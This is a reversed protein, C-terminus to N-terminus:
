VRWRYARLGKSHACTVLCVRHSGRQQPYEKGSFEPFLNVHGHGVVCQKVEQQVARGVAPRGRTLFGAEDLAQDVRQGSVVVPAFDDRVQGASPSGGLAVHSNAAKQERDVARVFGFNLRQDVRDAM